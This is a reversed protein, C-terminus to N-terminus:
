AQENPGAGLRAVEPHEPDNDDLVYVLHEAVFPNQKNQELWASFNWDAPIETVGPAAGTGDPNGTGTSRGSTGNLRIAIGDRVTTKVGDGTGDDYGPKWKCIMLGGPVICAVRVKKQEEAM